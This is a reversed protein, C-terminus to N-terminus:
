QGQSHLMNALWALAGTPDSTAYERLQNSTAYAQPTQETGISSPGAGFPVGATIPEDPRQSAAFLPVSPPRVAPSAAAPGTERASPVSPTPVGPTEALPAGKQQERYETAEGYQPDPLDRIPQGGVDSRSSFAGPGPVTM